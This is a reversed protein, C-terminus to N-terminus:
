KFPDKLALRDLEGNITEHYLVSAAKLNEVAGQLSHEFVGKLILALAVPAYGGKLLDAVIFILGTLIHLVAYGGLPPSYRSFFRWYVSFRTKRIEDHLESYMMGSTTFFAAATLYTIAPAPLGRLAYVFMMSFSILAGAWLFAIYARMFRLFRRRLKPFTVVVRM